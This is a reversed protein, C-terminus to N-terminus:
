GNSSRASPTSSPKVAGLSSKRGRRGKAAKLYILYERKVRENEANHLRM